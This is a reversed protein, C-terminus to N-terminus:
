QNIIDEVYKAYVTKTRRYRWIIMDIKGWQFILFLDKWVWSIIYWSFHNQKILGMLPSGLFFVEAIVILIYQSVCHFPKFSFFYM